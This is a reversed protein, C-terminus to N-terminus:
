FVLKVLINNVLFLGEFVEQLFLIIRSLFLLGILNRSLLFFLEFLFNTLCRIMCFFIEFSFYFLWVGLNIKSFFCVDCRLNSVIEPSFTEYFLNVWFNCVSLIHKFSFERINEYFVFGYFFNMSFIWLFIGLCIWSFDILFDMLFNMLFNMLFMDMNELFFSHVFFNDPFIFYELFFLDGLFNMLFTVINGLSVLWGLTENSIHANDTSNLSSANGSHIATNRSDAKRSSEESSGIRWGSESTPLVKFFLFSFCM